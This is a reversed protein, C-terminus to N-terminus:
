DYCISKFLLPGQKRNGQVIYFNNLVNTNVYLPAPLVINNEKIAQMRHRLHRDFSDKTRKVDKSHTASCIFVLLEEYSYFTEIQKRKIQFTVTTVTTKIYEKGEIIVDEETITQTV